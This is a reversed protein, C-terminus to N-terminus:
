HLVCFKFSKLRDTADNEDEVSVKIVNYVKGASNVATVAYEGADDAVSSTVLLSYLMKEEDVKIQLKECTGAVIPEGNKFWSVDAIPTAAM